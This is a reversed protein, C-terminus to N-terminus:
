RTKGRWPPSTKLKHTCASERWYPAAHAPLTVNRVFQVERHEAPIELLNRTTTVLSSPSLESAQSAGDFNASAKARCLWVRRKKKPVKPSCLDVIPDERKKRQGGLRRRKNNYVCSASIKGRSGAGTGAGREALSRSRRVSKLQAGRM